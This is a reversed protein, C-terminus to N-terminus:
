KAHLRDSILSGNLYIFGSQYNYKIIDHNGFIYGDIDKYITVNDLINYVKNLSKKSIAYCHTGVFIPWTTYIHSIKLEHDIIYKPDIPNKITDFFIIDANQIPQIRSLYSWFYSNIYIDDELILVWEDDELLYQNDAFYKIVNKHAMWCGIIGMHTPSGVHIYSHVKYSLFDPVRVGSFRQIKIYPPCSSLQNLIFTNKDTRHDMNIYACNTIKM